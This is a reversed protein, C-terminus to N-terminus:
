PVVRLTIELRTPTREPAARVDQFIPVASFAEVYAVPNPDQDEVVVRLERGQYRWAQFTATDSPLIGDIIAMLRAQSPEDLIAAMARNQLRLELVANRANLEPALTEQMQEFAAATAEKAYAVKWFRTEQWVLALALVLVTAAVLPFEHEELWERPTLASSWPDPLLPTAPTHPIAGFEQAEVDKTRSVFWAIDQPDPERAFWFADDLVGDRWRQAEFGEHCAQVHVGDSKAPHFVSEPLVRV